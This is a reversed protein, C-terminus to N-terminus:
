NNRYSRLKKIQPTKISRAEMKYKRNMEADTDQPKEMLKETIEDM